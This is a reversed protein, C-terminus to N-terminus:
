VWGSTQNEKKNGHWAYYDRDSTTKTTTTEIEDDM